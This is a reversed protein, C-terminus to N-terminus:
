LFVPDEFLVTTRPAAGTASRSKRIGSTSGACPGDIEAESHAQMALMHSRARELEDAARDDEANDNGLRSDGFILQNMLGHQAHAAREEHGSRSPVSLCQILTELRKDFMRCQAKLLELDDVVDLKRWANFWMKAHADMSNQIRTLTISITEMIDRVNNVCVQIFDKSTSEALEVDDDEVAELLSRVTKFKAEVDLEMLIFQVRGVSESNKALLMIATNAAAEVAKYLMVRTLQYALSVSVASVSAVTVIATAAAM